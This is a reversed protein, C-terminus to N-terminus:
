VFGGGFATRLAQVANFLTADDASSLGLTVAVFSLRKKTFDQAGGAGNGNAWAILSFNHPPAGIPTTADNALSGHAQGSSAFYINLTTAGTRQLSYFGAPSAPPTWNVKGTDTRYLNGFTLTANTHSNLGTFANTGGANYVGIEGQTGTADDASVYVVLGSSNTLMGLTDGILGTDMYKNTGNGVLGNVTLDALVFNNNTWPDNGTGVGKIFPTRAAILNDPAVVNCSLIKGWVNAGGKLTTVFTNLASQTNASPTAGGNAIVRSVWDPVVADFGTVSLAATFTSYANQSDVFRIEAYLLVGTAPAAVSGTTGPAAVTSALTFTINDPSTWLETKTVGAPPANWTAVANAGSIAWTFGTPTAPVPHAPNPAVKATVTTGAFTGFFKMLTCNKTFVIITTGPGTSDYRVGCITVFLDNAGWMITYTTFSLVTLDFEPSGGPGYSSGPPVINGAMLGQCILYLYIEELRGSDLCMLCAAGAM